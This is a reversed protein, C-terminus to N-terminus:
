LGFTAKDILLYTYSITLSANNSFVQGIFQLDSGSPLFVPYDLPVQISGVGDSRLATVNSPIFSGGVPRVRFQIEGEKTGSGGQRRSISGLAGTM